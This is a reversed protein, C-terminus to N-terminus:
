TNKMTNSKAWQSTRVGFTNKMINSKLNVIKDAELSPSKLSFDFKILYIAWRSQHAGVRCQTKM